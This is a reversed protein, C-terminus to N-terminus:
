KLISELDDLINQNKAKEGIDIVNDNKHTDEEIETKYQLRMRLVDTSSIRQM